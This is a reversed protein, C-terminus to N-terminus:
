RYCCAIGKAVVDNHFSFVVDMFLGAEDGHGQARCGAGCQCLTRAAGAVVTGALAAPWGGPPRRQGRDDPREIDIVVADDVGRLNGIRRLFQARQELAPGRLQINAIEEATRRPPAASGIATGAHRSSGGIHGATIGL